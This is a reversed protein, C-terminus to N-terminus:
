EKRPTGCSWPAWRRRPARPCTWSSRSASSAMRTSCSTSPAPSRRLAPSPLSLSALPSQKVTSLTPASRSHPTAFKALARGATAFHLRLASAAMHGRSCTEAQACVEERIQDMRCFIHADDQQFRRVRTLGTLAGSFENRHLVGFDAMRIPLEAPASCSSHRTSLADTLNDLGCAFARM